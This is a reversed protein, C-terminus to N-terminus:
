VLSQGAEVCVYVSVINKTGPTNGSGLVINPM